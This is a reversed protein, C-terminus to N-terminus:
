KGCVFGDVGKILKRQAREYTTSTIQAEREKARDQMIQFDSKVYKEKPKADYMKNLTVTQEHLEGRLKYFYNETYEDVWDGKGMGYLLVMGIKYSSNEILAKIQKVRM